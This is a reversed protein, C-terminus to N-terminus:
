EVLRALIVVALGDDHSKRGTLQGCYSIISGHGRIRSFATIIELKDGGRRGGELAGYAQEGEPISGDDAAAPVLKTLYANASDLFIASGTWEAIVSVVGGHDM